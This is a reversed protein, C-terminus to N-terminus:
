KPAAPAGRTQILVDMLNREFDTQAGRADELAQRLQALIQQVTEPDASPGAATASELSEGLARVDGVAQAYARASDYVLQERLEKTSPRQLVRWPQAVIEDIGLKLSDAAQRTSALTRKIGPMEASFQALMKEADQSAKKVSRAIEPAERATELIFGLTDGALGSTLVDVNKFINDLRARNDDIAKQTTDIVKVVREVGTDIKTLIPDLRDAGKAVTDLIAELSKSWEPLKDAFHEVANAAREVTHQLRDTNDSVLKRADAMVQETDSIIKNVKAIQEPGFGSQALFAPPALSGLLIDGDDIKDSAGLKMALTKPNGASTINLASITGLLPKDLSIGANDYLDIDSRMEVDVLVGLPVRAPADPGAWEFNIGSVRGVQQGGLLVASGPKLGSTGDALTFRVRFKKNWGLPSGGAFMFSMAVTGALGSVLFLGALWNYKSSAWSSM